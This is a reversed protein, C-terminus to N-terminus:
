PAGKHRKIEGRRVQRCESFTFRAIEDIAHPTIQDLGIGGQSLIDVKVM